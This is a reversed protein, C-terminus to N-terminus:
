GEEPEPKKTAPIGALVRRYAEEAVSSAGEGRDMSDFLEVSQAALAHRNPSRQLEEWTRLEGNEFLEGYRSQQEPSLVMKGLVEHNLRNFNPATSTKPDDVEPTEGFITPKIQEIGMDIYSGVFPTDGLFAQPLDFIGQKDKHRSLEDGYDGYIVAARGADSGGQALGELTGIMGLKSSSGPSAPSNAYEQMMRDKAAEVAESVKPASAEDTSLIGLINSTGRYTGNGDPDLWSTAEGKDNLTVPVEFGATNSSLGGAMTEIHPAFGTTLAQTLNPNREGLTHNGAADLSTLQDWRAGPDGGGSLYEAASSMIKGHREAALVDAPDNRNEITADGPNFQFLTAPAAGKDSWAHKTINDYLQERQEDTTRLEGTVLDKGTLLEEVAAKDQGATTFFGDVLRDSSGYGGDIQLRTSGVLDHDDDKYDEIGALYKSGVDLLKRDVDTGTMYQPDGAGVLKAIAKNDAVGNLNVQENVLYKSEKTVLDSRTLSSQMKQPLVALGGKGSNPLEKDTAAVPGANIKPNSMIQFSNAMAKQTEPPLKSVIQEIEKPSKGDMSRGLENLYEMQSAPITSSDGRQLAALQEPTLQGAEILRQQAEPSLSAPNDVLQQGDSRAQQSGLAAASVFAVRLDAGAVNLADRLTIDAQMASRVAENLETQLNTLEKAQEDTAKELSFALKDSIQYSRREAEMIAGRARLLPANIEEYGQKARNGIAELKDALLQMTKYDSQARAQAADATQGEWYAGDVTTVATQYEQFLGKLEAGVGIWADGLELLTAPQATAVWTRPDM